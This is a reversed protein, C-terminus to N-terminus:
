EEINRIVRYDLKPLLLLNVPMARRQLVGNVHVGILMSLWDEVPIVQILGSCNHHALMQGAIQCKYNSLRCIMRDWASMKGLRHMGSDHIRM